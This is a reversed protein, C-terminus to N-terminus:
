DYKFGMFDKMQYKNVVELVEEVEPKDFNEFHQWDVWEMKRIRPKSLCVSSYFHYHFLSWFRKDMRAHKPQSYPNEGRALKVQVSTGEYNQYELQLSSDYKTPPNKKPFLTYHVLYSSDIEGPKVAATVEIPITKGQRGGNDNPHQGILSGRGGSISGLGRGRKPTSKKPAVQRVAINFAEECESDEYPIAEQGKEQLFIWDDSCPHHVSLIL